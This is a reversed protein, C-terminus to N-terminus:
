THYIVPNGVLLIKLNDEMALHIIAVGCILYIHEKLMFLESNKQYRPMMYFSTKNHLM